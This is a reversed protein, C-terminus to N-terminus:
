RPRTADAEFRQVHYNALVVTINDVAGSTLAREVLLDCQEAQTRRSALVDAISDDGVVDTLGNTCLLLVDDDALRFHEVIATPGDVTAGLVHNRVPDVEGLPQGVPVPLPSTAAIMLAMAAVSAPPVDSMA